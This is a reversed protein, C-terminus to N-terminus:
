LSEIEIINDKLAMEEEEIEDLLGEEFDIM